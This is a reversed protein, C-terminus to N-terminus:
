SSSIHKTQVCDSTGDTVHHWLRFKKQPTKHTHELRRLQSSNERPTRIFLSIEWPNWIFLTNRSPKLLNRSPKLHFSVGAGRTARVPLDNSGGQKTLTSIRLGTHSFLTLKVYLTIVSYLVRCLSTHFFLLTKHSLVAYVKCQLTSGQVTFYMAICQGTCLGTHFFYEVAHVTSYLVATCFRRYYLSYM